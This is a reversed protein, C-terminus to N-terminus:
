GFTDPHQVAWGTNVPDNDIARDVSWDGSLFQSYTATPQQLLVPQGDVKCDLAILNIITLSIAIRPNKMNIRKRLNITSHPKNKFEKKISAHELIETLTIVM